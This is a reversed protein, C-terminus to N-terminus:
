QDEGVFRGGSEVQQGLLLGELHQQSASFRSLARHQQNGVVAM